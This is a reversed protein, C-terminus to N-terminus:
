PTSLSGPLKTCYLVRSACASGSNSHGRCGGRV